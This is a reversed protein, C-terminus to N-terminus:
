LPLVTCPDGPQLPPHDAPVILLCDAAVMTSIISSDQNEFARVHPVGDVLRWTARRYEERKGGGRAPAAMVGARRQDRRARGLFAACLPELFVMACVLSSVPNGPLGLVRLTRKPSIRKGFLVPKGPRMALQWFDLAVSRAEIARRVLDHEGVSAGGLTVVLDPNWREITDLKASLSALTDRAIGFTRAVAGCRRAISAVGLHNSAVIQDPGPARGPSVLEDGTSLIAVRPQRRVSASAHGGAAALTLAAPDLVTGAALLVQGEEFDLGARRVYRGPEEPQTVVITDDACREAQEQILITDAGDPVPAGTFIRVAQGVSVSGEFARGAAAEGVVRLTGGGKAVDAAQVAYGDMASAPFPPQTRTAVLAEALVRDDARTLPVNEAEVPAVDATMRAIADAVSLLDAM